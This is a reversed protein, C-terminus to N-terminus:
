ISKNSKLQIKKFKINMKRKNQVHKIQNQHINFIKFNSLLVVNSNIFFIPQFLDFSKFYIGYKNNLYFM